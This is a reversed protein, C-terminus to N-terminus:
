RRALGLIVLRKKVIHTDLFRMEDFLPWKRKYPCGPEPPRKLNRLETNYRTRLVGWRQECEEGSGCSWKLMYTFCKLSLIGTMGVSTGIACWVSRRAQKNKFLAERKDYILANRRVLEILKEDCEM